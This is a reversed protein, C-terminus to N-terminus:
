HQSAHLIVFQQFTFMLLQVATEYEGKQKKLTVANHCVARQFTNCFTSINCSSYDSVSLFFPIPHPPPFSLFLCLFISPPPHKAYMFHQFYWTEEKWALLSILPCWSLCLFSLHCSKTVTFRARKSSSM